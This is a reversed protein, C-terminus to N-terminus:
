GKLLALGAKLVEQANLGDVPRTEMYSELLKRDDMGAHIDSVRQESRSQRHIIVQFHRAGSVSQIKELEKQKFTEDVILRVFDKHAWDVVRGVDERKKPLEQTLDVVRFRPADLRIREVHGKDTDVYLCGKDTELEGWNQAYPSGCYLVRPAVEQAKHVDGLFAWKFIRNKGSLGFQELTVGTGLRLEHPGVKSGAIFIHGLLICDSRKAAEKARAMFWQLRDFTLQWPWVFVKEKADASIIGSSEVVEAYKRFPALGSSGSALGDHNGHVMLKPVDVYEEMLALMGNLAALNWMGKLHKVDGLSIWQCKCHRAHELSQRIALLGDQLRDQGNDRSCERYPHLHSDAICIAKM